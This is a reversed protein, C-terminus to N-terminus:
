ERELAKSYEEVLDRAWSRSFPLAYWLGLFIPFLPTKKTGVELVDVWLYDMGALFLLMLCITILSRQAVRWDFIHEKFM